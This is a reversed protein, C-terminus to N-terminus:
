QHIRGGRKGPDSCSSVNGQDGRSTGVWVDAKVPRAGDTRMDAVTAGAGIALIVASFRPNGQVVTLNVPLALVRFHRPGGILM